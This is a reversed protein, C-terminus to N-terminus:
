TTRNDREELRQRLRRNEEKLERERNGRNGFQRMLIIAIVVAPVGFCLGLLLIEPVGLGFFAFM